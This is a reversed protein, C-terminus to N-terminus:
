KGSIMDILEELKDWGDKDLRVLASILRYKFSEDGATLVDGLMAAIQNDKSQPTFMEGTGERLWKENVGFERCIDKITRDAPIKKGMEILNIYSRSLNMKNAFEEQTLKLERRMEKFRANM